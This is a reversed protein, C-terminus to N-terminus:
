LMRQMLIVNGSHSGSVDTSRILFSSKDKARSLSAIGPQDEDVLVHAFPWFMIGLLLGPIICAMTGINVILGFLLTCLLLRLFFRGGAFLDGFEAPQERATKVQMLLYGSQIYFLFGFAIIMTVVGVSAVVTGESTKGQDFLANAISFPMTSIISLALFSGILLGM